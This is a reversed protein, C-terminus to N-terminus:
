TNKFLSYIEPIPGNQDAFLECLYSVEDDRFSFNGSVLLKKYAIQIVKLPYSLVAHDPDFTYLDSSDLLYERTVRRLGFDIIKEFHKPINPETFKAIKYNAEERREILWELPEQVGILQSLLHPEFNQRKFESLVLKHTSGIKSKRPVQGPQAILIFPISKNSSKFYFICIGNLALLSRLGYFTAYYLKVTAWTLLEKKIDLTASGVSVISSYIYSLADNRLCKKLAFAQASDLSNNEISSINSATNLLNDNAFLQAQHAV